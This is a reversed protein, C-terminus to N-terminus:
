GRLDIDTQDLFEQIFSIIDGINRFYARRGSPIHDIRGRWERETASAERGEMWVKVVFAHVYRPDM